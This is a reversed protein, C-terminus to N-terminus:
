QLGIGVIDLFQHPASTGASLDLVLGEMQEPVLAVRDFVVESMALLSQRVYQQGEVQERERQVAGAVLGAREPSLGAVPEAPSDAEEVGEVDDGGPLVEVAPM